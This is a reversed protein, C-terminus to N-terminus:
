HLKIINIKQWATNYSARYVVTFASNYLNNDIEFKSGSSLCPPTIQFTKQLECQCTLYGWLIKIIMRIKELPIVSFILIFYQPPLSTQIGPTQVSHSLFAVLGTLIAPTLAWNSVRFRVFVFFSYQGNHITSQNLLKNVSEQGIYKACRLIPRRNCKNRPKNLLTKDAAYYLLM